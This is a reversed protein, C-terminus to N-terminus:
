TAACIHDSIKVLRSQFGQTERLSGSMVGFHSVRATLLSSNDDGFRLLFSDGCRLRPSQGSRRPAVINHENMQVVTKQLHGQAKKACPDPVQPAGAFMKAPSRMWQRRHPAKWGLRSRGGFFQPNKPPLLWRIRTSIMVAPPAM